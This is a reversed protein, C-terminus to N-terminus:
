WFAWVARRRRIFRIFGAPSKTAPLQTAPHPRMSTSLSSWWWVTGLYFLASRGASNRGVARLRSSWALTRHNFGRPTGMGLNRELCTGGFVHLEEPWAATVLMLFIIIPFVIGFVVEGSPKHKCCAYNYRGRCEDPVQSFICKKVESGVSSTGYKLHHPPPGDYCDRGESDCWRADCIWRQAREKQLKEQCQQNYAIENIWDPHHDRWDDGELLAAEDDQDPVALNYNEDAKSLAALALWLYPRRLIM